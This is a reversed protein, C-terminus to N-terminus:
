LECCPYLDIGSFRSIVISLSESGDTDTLASTIDLAIATDESGSANSVALDPADAVATVDVIVNGSLTFETGNQDVTASVSISLDVDSNAEPTITLGDLQAETLSWTGDNNDTGASLTAGAPVTIVVGTISEGADGNANFNITLPIDTDESGGVSSVSMTTDAAADVTIAIAGSAVATDGGDAEIATATVTLNTTGDFNAAPTFTLGALDGSELTWTGDNNNTGASLVAGTPVGSITISLSESGDTDTLASTIDLSIATDESGSANSVALDPADAV